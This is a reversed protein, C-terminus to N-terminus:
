ELGGLALGIATTLTPGVARLGEADYAKTKARTYDFPSALNVPLRLHQALRDALGVLSAGGGSIVVSSVPRSGPQAQYYALSSRLEDIFRDVHGTVVQSAADEGGLRCRRKQAEADATDTGLGQALADTIADGGTSLIRVFTPTGAEHVILSTVGAGLDILAESGRELSSTNGVARLLAFCNLDVGQPKLGARTAVEVHSALMERHAAVLLVRQLHDGEETVWDAVVHLDIEAEEVAIPLHEQAQYRISTRLEDIPMYPMDIQRVVVRPNAVGLWVKRTKLKASALVEKLAEAAAVPDLVEGGNVITAPLEIGGFNTVVAGSRAESVEAVTITHTGIDIGVSRNAM